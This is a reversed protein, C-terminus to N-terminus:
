RTFKGYTTTEIDLYFHESRHVAVYTHEKDQEGKFQAIEQALGEDQTLAVIDDDMMVAWLIDDLDDITM